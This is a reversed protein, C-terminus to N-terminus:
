NRVQWPSRVVVSKTWQVTLLIRSFNPDDRGWTLAWVMLQHALSERTSKGSQNINEPLLLKLVPSHFAIISSHWPYCGLGARVPRPEPWVKLAKRIDCIKASFNCVVVNDGALTVLVSSMCRKRHLLKTCHFFHIRSDHFLTRQTCEHELCPSFIDAPIHKTKKEWSRCM